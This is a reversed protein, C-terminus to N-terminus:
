ISDLPSKIALATKHAVHTYRETIRISSHGLLEQIYRVDTGNELLHTAFSHRLSHISASKAIGSNKLAKEFVHQASRESLHKSAPNGAFIWDDRRFDHCFCHLAEAIKLSLLTYRDKRGKGARVFVTNREFDIDSVKLRVLEAVRLGASYALALLLKHKRNSVAAFLRQIETKSFVPPLKKDGHPRSLGNAFSSHLVEGYFFKIASIALNMSSASVKRENDLYAIYRRADDFTVTSPPKQIFNCFNRNFVLYLKITKPSYKRSHLANKLNEENTIGFFNKSIANKSLEDTLDIRNKFFNGISISIEPSKGVEVFPYGEFLREWDHIQAKQFVFSRTEAEWHATKSHFVHLWLLRDYDFFPLRVEGARHFLYVTNM